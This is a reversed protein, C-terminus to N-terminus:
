SELIVDHVIDSRLDGDSIQAQKDSRWDSNDCDNREEEGSADPRKDGLYEESIENDM